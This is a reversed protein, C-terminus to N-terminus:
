ASRAVRIGRFNTAQTPPTGEDRFACRPPNVTRFAAGRLVRYIGGEQAERGDNPDYPYPGPRSSTWEWVNGAMDLIGYPSAGEPHSGVALTDGFFFNHNCLKRNPRADGWPYIRGGTGRAAKEWEAESPLRGGAWECFARADFWDVFVVPHQVKAPPIEGDTWHSPIRHGTACVFQRYQSNTIPVRSIWFAPLNVAHLPEENGWTRRDRERSSGMLFEGAPIFSWDIAVSSCQPLM